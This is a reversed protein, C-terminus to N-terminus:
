ETCECGREECRCSYAPHGHKSQYCFKCELVSDVTWQLEDFFRDWQHVVASWTVNDNDMVHGDAAIMKWHEDLPGISGGHRKGMLSGVTNVIGNGRREHTAFPLRGAWYLYNVYGQDSPVGKTHCKASRVENLLVTEMDIMGDRTAFYSGSCLVPHDKMAKFEERWCSRVWGSNFPCNNMRKYPWHELTLLQEFSGFELSEFPDRQFFTDRFDLILLRSQKSYKWAWSLYLEHRIIALPLPMDQEDHWDCGLGHKVNGRGNCKFTVPYAIVDMAKLFRQCVVDLNPSVALVIDGSYGTRRLTGVFRVFNIIKYNVALALIANNEEIHPQPWLPKPLSYPDRTLLPRKLATLSPVYEDPYPADYVPPGV